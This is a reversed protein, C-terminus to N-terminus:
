LDGAVSRGGRLVLTYPIKPMHGAIDGALVPVSFAVKGNGNELHKPPGFSYGEPAAVFLEATANPRPLTASVTLAAPTTKAEVANFDETPATPLAAFTEAVTAADMLDDADKGPDVVLHAQFPVCISQCVGIFINADLEM